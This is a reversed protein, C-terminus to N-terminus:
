HKVSVTIGAQTPIGDITIAVGSQPPLVFGKLNPNQDAFDSPRPVSVSIQYVDGPLGGVPGLVAAIGNAYFGDVSVVVPTDTVAYGRDFTMPGVGTAYITIEDGETAPNATSNPTGDKNLVYAQGVGSGDRTFIGPSAAAGPVAVAASGGASRVELTVPAAHFDAPVEATLTKSDHSILPLPSGNLLLSVDDGFGAGHIQITERQSLPVAVQSAANVVSDIRPGPPRVLDIRVVFAGYGTNPFMDFPTAGVIPIPQLSPPLSTTGGFVVGGDPTTAVSRVYFNRSDGVFSSFLLASFDSTLQSLFGTPSAFSSQLEAFTPFAKSFTSGGVVLTDDSATAASFVTDPAEGGLLTATVVNLQADMRVVFGDGPGTNASAGSVGIAPYPAPQVVGPTSPFPPLGAYPTSTGTVLLNGAGDPRLASVNERFDKSALLSSGTPDLRYLTNQGAVVVSSDPLLAVASASETQTGLYTSFVLSAGATDFETVYGNTPPISILCGPGCFTGAFKPQYSGPTTPLQGYSIGAIYAHGAGDVAIANPQAAFYTSWALTGDANLKVVFSQGAAAFAGSTSPFDGSQTAGTLYVAGAADLTMARAVDSSSGGLYTAWLVNGDPDLKAVFVDSSVAAGVFVRGGTAALSTITLAPPGIATTTEFGDTSQIVHTGQAAYALGTSADLAVLPTPTFSKRTWTAGGDTSKWLADQSGGYLVGPRAPDAVIINPQWSVSAVRGLAIWTMGDDVSVASRDEGTVYVKGSTLPDFTVIGLGPVVSNQIWQWSAGADGSRALSYAQATGVNAFLVNAHNPDAWVRIAYPQSFAAIPIGNNIASFTAGGDSSKLIGSRFAAVYITGDSAIDFSSVTAPVKALTQWTDGADTSLLIAAGNSTYVTRPNRPDTILTGGNLVGAQYLNRRDTGPGDIRFLGSGGPHTQIANVVPFDLSTTTGAVFTNGQRDTAIGAVSEGGTGGIRRIWRYAANQANAAATLLIACLAV